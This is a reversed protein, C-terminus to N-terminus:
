EAYKFGKDQTSITMCEWYSSYAVGNRMCCFLCTYLLVFLFNEVFLIVSFFLLVVKCSVAEENENTLNMKRYVTDVFSEIVKPKSNPAVQMLNNGHIDNAMDSGWVPFYGHHEIEEATWDAQFLHCAPVKGSPSPPALPCIYTSTQNQWSKYNYIKNIDDAGTYLTDVNVRRLLDDQDTINKTGLGPFYTSMTPQGIATVM